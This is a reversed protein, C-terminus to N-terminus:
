ESKTLEHTLPDSAGISEDPINAAQAQQSQGIPQGCASCHVLDGAKLRRDRESALMEKFTRSCVKAQAVDNFASLLDKMARGSKLHEELRPYLERFQTLVLDRRSPKAKSLFRDLKEINATSARPGPSTSTVSANNM